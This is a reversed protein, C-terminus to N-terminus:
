AKRATRMVVHYMVYGLYLLLVLGPLGLLPAGPTRLVVDTGVLAAVLIGVLAEGAILGSAFLVGPNNGEPMETGTRRLFARGAFWAFLGGLFIPATTEIGLYIGVAVAMVPIRFSSGRRQQVMDAVILAVAILMGFGIIPYPLGAVDPNFIGGSISAMLNAQPAKLCEIGAIMQDGVKCTSGDVLIQIVPAIFFASVAAGIAIMAQQKRPTAGLMYGAKLDQLNDSAISGAVAIIAAVFITAAAGIDPLLGLAKLTFASVLLTLITVGSIPNNSSGVLGAMYAGVASFLFGTIAMILAMIAAVGWNWETVFAYFFFMPVLMLAIGAYTTLPSLEVETRVVEQKPGASGKASQVGQKVARVLPGRLKVLSWVGGVLMAGVGLYRVEFGVACAAVKEAVGSLIDAKCASTAPIDAAIQEPTLLGTILPLGVLWGLVGGAFVLTAIRLGIIFGVGMLAPSLVTGIGTVVRGGFQQVHLISDDFLKIGSQLFKYAAGLGGGLLLAAIGGGSTGAKLVEATAVGEPFALREEVILAKRLPVTFLVGLIGGVLGIITTEMYHVHDWVPQGNATKLLLLAPITFLIGSAVATGASAITQVMNNELVNHKRFLKLVGLSVVAAPIAAAVTLGAKLGLYTNAAGLVVSLVMGLLVAKVTVEALSVNAPVFPADEDGPANRGAAVRSSPPATM